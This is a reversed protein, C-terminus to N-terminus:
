KGAMTCMAFAFLMNLFMIVVIVVGAILVNDKNKDLEGTFKDWCGQLPPDLGSYPNQRCSKIKDDGYQACCSEPVKYGDPTTPYEDSRTEWNDSSNFHVGCCKFDTQVQNWADTIAKATKDTDAADPNDKFQKM